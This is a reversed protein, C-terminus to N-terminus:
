DIAYYAEAGSAGASRLVGTNVFFKYTGIFTGHL